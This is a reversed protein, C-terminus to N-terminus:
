RGGPTYIGRYPDRTASRKGPVVVSFAAFSDPNSRRQLEAIIGGAAGKAKARRSIEARRRQVQGAADGVLSRYGIQLGSEKESVVKMDSM